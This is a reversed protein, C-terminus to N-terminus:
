SAAPSLGRLLLELTFDFRDHEDGHTLERAYAVTNPFRSVPLMQFREVIEDAEIAPESGEGSQRLSVEFSHASVYLFAADSAWAASQPAVGGTLLITLLGEGIRLTDLSNPTGALAARSVGPYQRFLDRLQRCVDLFQERWREPDPTPLTVRACLEGILLDDLEAKNRVHAYLSSPGTKLAAAVRRMTLAEFGEAEVLQFATDVIRGVTIPAKRSRSTARPDDLAAIRAAWQDRSVTGRSASRDAM